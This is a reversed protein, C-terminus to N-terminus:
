YDRKPQKEAEKNHKWQFIGSLVSLIVIGALYGYFAKPFTSWDIFGDKAMAHLETENPYGGAYMAIGRIIM